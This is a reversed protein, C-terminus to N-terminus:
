TWPDVQVLLDFLGLICYTTLSTPVLVNSSISGRVEWTQLVRPINERLGDTRTERGVSSLQHHDDEFVIPDYVTLHSSHLGTEFILFNIWILFEKHNEPSLRSPLPIMVHVILIIWYLVLLCHVRLFLVPKKKSECCFVLFPQCCRYFQWRQRLVHSMCPWNRFFNWKYIYTYCSPHERQWM